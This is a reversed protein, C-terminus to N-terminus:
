ATTCWLYVTDMMYLAPVEWAPLSADTAAIFWGTWGATIYSVVVVGLATYYADRLPSGRYSRRIALFAFWHSVALLVAYGGPRLLCYILRAKTPSELLYWWVGGCMVYCPVVHISSRVFTVLVFPIAVAAMILCIQVAWWVSQVWLVTSLLGSPLLRLLPGPDSAFGDWKM